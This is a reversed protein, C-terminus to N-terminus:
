NVSVDAFYARKMRAVFQTLKPYLLVATQLHEVPYPCQLISALYSYVVADLITPRLLSISQSMSNLVRMRYRNTRTSVFGFM